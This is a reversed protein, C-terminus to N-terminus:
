VLNYERDLGYKKRLTGLKMSDLFDIKGNESIKERIRSVDEADNYDDLGRSLSIGDFIKLVQPMSTIKVGGVYEISDDSIIAPASTEVFCYGTDKWDNSSCKIGVSEHNEQQNYFIAIGYGLERLLFALLQSKEGCIGM